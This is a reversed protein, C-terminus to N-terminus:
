LLSIGIATRPIHCVILYTLNFLLVAEWAGMIVSRCELLVLVANPMTGIFFTGIITGARLRDLAQLPSQPLPQLLRGTRASYREEINVTHLAYSSRSDEENHM